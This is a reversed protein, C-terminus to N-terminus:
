KKGKSKEEICKARQIPDTLRECEPPIQTKQAIEDAAFDGSTAVGPTPSGFAMAVMAYGILNGAM